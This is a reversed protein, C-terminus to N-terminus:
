GLLECYRPGAPVTPRDIVDIVLPEGLDFSVRINWVFGDDTEFMAETFMLRIYHRGVRAVYPGAPVFSDRLTEIRLRAGLYGHTGILLNLSRDRMNDIVIDGRQWAIAAEFNTDYVTMLSCERHVVGATAFSPMVAGWIGDLFGHFLMRASSAPNAGYEIFSCRHHTRVIMLFQFVTQPPRMANLARCAAFVRQGDPGLWKSATALQLLVM